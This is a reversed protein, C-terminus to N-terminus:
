EIYDSLFNSMQALYLIYEASLLPFYLFCHFIYFNCGRKYQKNFLHLHKDLQLKASAINMDDM